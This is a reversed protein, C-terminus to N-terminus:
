IFLNPYLIVVPILVIIVLLILFVITSIFGALITNLTSMNHTVSITNVIVIIYYITFAFTVLGTLLTLLAIFESYLGALILIVSDIASILINFFLLPVQIVLFVEITKLINRQGGFIKIWLHSWLIGVIAILTSFLGIIPLLLLITVTWDRDNFVFEGSPVILEPLLVFFLTFTTTIAILLSGLLISYNKDSVKKVENKDLKWLGLSSKIYQSIDM